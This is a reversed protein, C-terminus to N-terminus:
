RTQRAKLCSYIGFSLLVVAPLLVSKLGYSETLLAGILCGGLFSGIVEIGSLKPLNLFFQTVNGTMVTSTPTNKLYLRHVANQIAMAFVLVLPSMTALLLAILILYANISIKKKKDMVNVFVVGLAFVPFTLLKQYVGPDNHLLNSALVVFNGTVHASFMQDAGVFTATDIFGAIFALIYIM